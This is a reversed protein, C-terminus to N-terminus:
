KNSLRNYDGVTLKLTEILQEKKNEEFHDTSKIAASVLDNISELEKGDELDIEGWYLATIVAGLVKPRLSPEIKASRLISSLEIATNIYDSIQPISVETTGNNTVLAGDVEYVSPFSTLEYGKSTLPTWKKDNWFFSKFLYGHDEEGAVGVVIRIKYKGKKNISNAYEMAESIAIDIKKIDNKAEVVVLPLSKKCVIFDPKTGDLGCDPFFDEIEQEELFDGGKQPHRVDWGKQGAIDRVLYRCRSEARKSKAM